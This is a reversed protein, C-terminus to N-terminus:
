NKIDFLEMGYDGFEWPRPVPPVQGLLIASYYNIIAVYDDDVLQDYYSGNWIVNNFPTAGSLDQGYFYGNFPSTIVDGMADTITASYDQVLKFNTNGTINLESCNRDITLDFARDYVGAKVTVRAMAIQGDSEAIIWLINSASNFTAWFSGEPQSPSAIMSQFPGVPISLSSINMNTGSCFFNSANGALIVRGSPNFTVVGQVTGTGTKVPKGSTPFDIDAINTNSNLISGSIVVRRIQGTVSNTNAVTAFNYGSVPFEWRSESSVETDTIKGSNTVAVMGVNSGTHLVSYLKSAVVSREILGLRDNLPNADGQTDVENTIAIGGLNTLDAGFYIQGGARSNRIVGTSTNTGVLGAINNKSSLNAEFSVRDITGSNSHVVGAVTTNASTNNSMLSGSVIQTNKITGTNTRAIGNVSTNPGATNMTVNLNAVIWRDIVGANSLLPAFGQGSSAAANTRYGFVFGEAGDVTIGANITPSSYIVNPVTIIDSSLNIGSLIQVYETGTLSSLQEFQEKRCITIPNAFTGRAGAQALLSDRNTVGGVVLAPASCPHRESVLRPMDGNVHVFPPANFATSLYSASNMDAETMSTGNFVGSVTDGEPSIDGSVLYRYNAFSTPNALVDGVYRGRQCSSMCKDYINGAFYGTDFTGTHATSGFLGGVNTGALSTIASNAYVHSISVTAGLDGLNGILGGVNGNSVLAGEHSWSDFGSNIGNSTSLMGGVGGVTSYNAGAYRPLIHVRAHLRQARRAQSLMGFIGGVTGGETKIISNTVYIDALDINNAQGIVGGSDAPNNRVEIEADSVFINSIVGQSANSKYGLLSGIEGGASIEARNLKLDRIYGEASPAWTGIFGVGYSSEMRMRMNSIRHNNGDFNGIYGVSSTLCTSLNYITGIPQWNQGMEWCEADPSLNADATYGKMFNNLDVDASLRFSKNYNAPDSHIAMLQKTSCILYPFNVAGDGGAFPTLASRENRCIVEDPIAVALVYEDVSNTFYKKAPHPTVYSHPLVLKSPNADSCDFSSYFFDLEVRFPVAGPRAPDGSPIVLNGNGPTMWQGIPGNTMQVCRSLGDGSAVSVGNGYDPLRIRVSMVPAKDSQYNLDLRNNTCEHVESTVTEVSECARLRLLSTSLGGTVSGKFMASNCNVQTLELAPAQPAGELRIPLSQACRVAGLAASMQNASTTDWAMAYFTWEGNPLDLTLSDTDDLVKGFSKRDASMGWVMLGGESFEDLEAGGFAFSSSLKLKVQSSKQSCSVFILSLLLILLSSRM